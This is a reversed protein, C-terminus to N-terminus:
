KNNDNTYKELRIFIFLNSIILYLFSVCVSFFCFSIFRAYSSYLYFLALSFDCSGDVIVFAVFDDPLLSICVSCYFFLSSAFRAVVFINMCVCCCFFIASLLECFSFGFDETYKISNARANQNMSSALALCIKTETHTHTYMKNEEATAKKRESRKYM